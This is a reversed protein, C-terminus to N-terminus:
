TITCDLFPRHLIWTKVRSWTVASCSFLSSQRSPIISKLDKMFLMEYLLCDFKVKPLLHKICDSKM